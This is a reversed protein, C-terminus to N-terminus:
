DQCRWPDDDGVVSYGRDIAYLHHFTRPARPSLIATLTNYKGRKAVVFGGRGYEWISLTPVCYRRDRCCLYDSSVRAHNHPSYVHRSISATYGIRQKEQYDDEDGDDTVGDLGHHEKFIFM